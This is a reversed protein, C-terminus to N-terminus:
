EIKTLIKIARSYKDKNKSLYYIKYKLKLKDLIKTIKDTYDFVRIKGREGHYIHPFILQNKNQTDSIAFYVIYYAKTKTKIKKLNNLIETRKM